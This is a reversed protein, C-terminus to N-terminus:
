LPRRVDLDLDGGRRPRRSPAGRAAPQRRVTWNTLPLVAPEMPKPPAAPTLRALGPGITRLRPRRLSKAVQPANFRTLHSIPPDVYLVPALTALQEAMHRDALKVEDWSNAACLVVLGDWPGATALQRPRSSARDLVSNM